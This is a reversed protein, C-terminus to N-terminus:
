MVNVVIEGEMFLEGWRVVCVYYHLREYLHDLLYIVNRGVRISAQKSTAEFWQEVGGSFAHMSRYLAFVAQRIVLFGTIGGVGM